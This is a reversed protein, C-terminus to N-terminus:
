DLRYLEAQENVDSFFNIYAEVDRQYARPARHNISPYTVRIQSKM